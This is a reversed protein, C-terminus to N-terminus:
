PSLPLGEADGSVQQNKKKKKQITSAPSVLVAKIILHKSISFTPIQHFTKLTYTSFTHNSTTHLKRGIFKQHPETTLHLLVSRRNYSLHNPPWIPCHREWFWDPALWVLFPFSKKCRSHAGRLDFFRSSSLDFLCGHSRLTDFSEMVRGYHVHFFSTDTTACTGFHVRLRKLSWVARM